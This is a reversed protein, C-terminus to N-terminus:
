SVKVWGYDTMPEGNHQPVGLKRNFRGPALQNIRDATTTSVWGQWNVFVDGNAEYLVIDNGHLTAFVSGTHDLRLATNHGITHSKRGWLVNLAETHNQPTATLKAM